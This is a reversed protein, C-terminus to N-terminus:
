NKLASVQVPSEKVAVHRQTQDPVTVDEMPLYLTTVSDRGRRPGLVVPCVAPVGSQGSQTAGMFQFVFSYM